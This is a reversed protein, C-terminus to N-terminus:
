VPEGWCRGVDVVAPDKMNDEAEWFEIGGEVGDVGVTVRGSTVLETWKELVTVLKVSHPPTFPCRYPWHQLLHGNRHIAHPPRNSSDNLLEPKPMKQTRLGGGGDFVSREVGRRLVLKVEDGDQRGPQSYLGTMHGDISEMQVPIDGPFLVNSAAYWAQAVEHGDTTVDHEYMKVLRERHARAAAPENTRLEHLLAPTLYRIGPTVYTFSPLPMNMLFERAFGYVGLRDMMTGDFGQSSEHGGGRPDDEPDIIELSSLGRPMRVAIEAVLRDYALLAQDVDDKCYFLKKLEVKDNNDLERRIVFKGRKFEALYRQLLYQLPVWDGDLYAAGPLRGYPMDVETHLICLQTWFDFYVGAGYDQWGSATSYLNFAHYVADGKYAESADKDNDEPRVGPLDGPWPPRGAYAGPSYDFGWPSPQLIDPTFGQYDNSKTTSSIPVVINIRELFVLLNHEVPLNEDLYRLEPVEQRNYHIFFPVIKHKSGQRSSSAGYVFDIIENHLAASLIPDFPDFPSTKIQMNPALDLYTHEFLLCLQITFWIFFEYVTLRKARM